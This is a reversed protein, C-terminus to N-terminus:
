QTPDTSLVAALARALESARFPKTLIPHRSDGHRAGPIGAGGTMILAKLGPRLERAHRVLELGTMGGLNVDVVILDIPHTSALKDLAASGSDAVLVDCGLSALGEQAVALLDPDDDVVLVSPLQKAQPPASDPVERDRLDIERARPLFLAARCGGNVARSLRAGGGHAKAIGHVASLGLGPHEHSRRTSFFPEFARAMSETSLGEGSDELTIVVYEGAALDPTAEVVRANTLEVKLRGGGPMADRANETLNILAFELQDRDVSVPWLGEDASLVLEVSPGATRSLVDRMGSVLLRLDAPACDLQQRGVFALLRNTMNSGRDAARLASGALSLATQDRSKSEILNLNLVITAFLNSLDHAFRGIVQSLLDLKERDGETMPTDCDAQRYSGKAPM